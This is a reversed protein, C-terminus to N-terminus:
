GPVSSSGQLSYAVAEEMRLARGEAWARTFTDENLQGHVRSVLDEYEARDDEPLPVHMMERLREHQGLFRAARDANGDTIEVWALGVLCEAVGKANDINQNLILSEQFRERALTWDQRALALEALNRLSIAEGFEDGLARRIRLTEQFLTEARAPDQIRV